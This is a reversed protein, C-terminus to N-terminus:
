SVDMKEDHGNSRKRDKRESECLDKSENERGCQDQVHKSQAEQLWNDRNKACGDLLPSLKPSM